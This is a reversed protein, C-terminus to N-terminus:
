AREIALDAGGYAESLITINYPAIPPLIRSRYGWPVGRRLIACRRM